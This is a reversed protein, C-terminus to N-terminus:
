QEERLKVIIKFTDEREQEMIYDYSAGPTTNGDNTNKVIDGILELVLPTVDGGYGAEYMLSYEIASLAYSAKVLSDEDTMDMNGITAETLVGDASLSCDTQGFRFGSDYIISWSKPENIIIDNKACRYSYRAIFENGSIGEAYVTMAGGCLLVVVLVLWLAKKMFKGEENVLLIMIDPFLPNM